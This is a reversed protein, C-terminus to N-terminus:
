LGPSSSTRKLAWNTLHSETSKPLSELRRKWGSIWYEDGSEVEYYNAKFATGKLSQFTKGNGIRAPGSLGSEDSKKEIWMIKTTQKM